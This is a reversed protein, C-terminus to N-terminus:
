KEHNGRLYYLADKWAMAASMGEGIAGEIENHIVGYYYIIAGWKARECRLGSDIELCKQKYSMEIAQSEYCYHEGPNICSFISNIRGRKKCFQVELKGGEGYDPRKWYKWGEPEITIIECGSYKGEEYDLHKCGIHAM